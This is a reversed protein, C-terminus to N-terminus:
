RYSPRYAIKMHEPCYIDHANAKAGCLYFGDQCPDGIPWRCNSQEVTIITQRQVVPVQREGDPERNSAAIVEMNPKRRAKLLDLKNNKVVLDSPM